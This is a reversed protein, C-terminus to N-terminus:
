KGVIEPTPVFGLGRSLLKIEAESFTKTSLNFVNDSIFKGRLRGSEPDIECDHTYSEEMNDSNKNTKSHETNGELINVLVEELEKDYLDTSPQLQSLTKQESVTQSTKPPKRVSIFIYKIADSLLKRQIIELLANEIQMSKRLATIDVNDSFKIFKTVRRNFLLADLELISERLEQLFVKNQENINVILDSFEKLQKNANEKNQDYLLHLMSTKATLLVEKWRTNFQESWLGISPKKNIILGTPIVGHNIYVNCFMEHHIYHIYKNAIIQLKNQLFSKDEM